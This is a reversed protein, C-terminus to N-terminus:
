AGTKFGIGARLILGLFSSQLPFVLTVLSFMGRPGEWRSHSLSRRALRILTATFISGLAFCVWIERAISALLVAKREPQVTAPYVNRRYLEGNWGMGLHSNAM